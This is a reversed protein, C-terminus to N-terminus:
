GEELRGGHLTWIRDALAALERSHTVFLVASGEDRAMGFLLDLVRQGSAEDLNGTPEDALVRRPRRVLAARRPALRGM